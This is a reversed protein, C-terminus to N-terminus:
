ASNTRSNDYQNERVSGATGLSNSKPRGPKFSEPINDEEDKADEGKTEEEIQMLQTKTETKLNRDFYNENIKQLTMRRSMRGEKKQQQEKQRQKVFSAGRVKVPDSARIDVLDGFEKSQAAVDTM